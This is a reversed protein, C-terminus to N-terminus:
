RGLLLKARHDPATLIGIVARARGTTLPSRLAGADIVGHRSSVSGDTDDNFGDVIRATNKKKKGDWNVGRDGDLRRSVRLLCRPLERNGVPQERVDTPVRQADDATCRSRFGM